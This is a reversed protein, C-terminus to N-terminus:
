WRAVMTVFLRIPYFNNWEDTRGDCTWAEGGVGAADAGMSWPSSCVFLIFIIGNTQGDCTWAEGFFVAPRGGADAAM